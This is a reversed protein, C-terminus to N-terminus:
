IQRKEIINKDNKKLLLFLDTKAILEFKLALRFFILSSITALEKILLNKSESIKKIDKRGETILTGFLM